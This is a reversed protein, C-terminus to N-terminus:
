WADGARSRGTRWRDRGACAQYRSRPGGLQRATALEQLSKRMAPDDLGFWRVRQPTVAPDPAILELFAGEGLRMLHNHTGMLPHAGGAPIVVGLAREIHAVGQELTLAAVTLHDFTLMSLDRIRILEIKM